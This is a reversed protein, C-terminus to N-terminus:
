SCSRRYVDQNNERVSGKASRQANRSWQQETERPREAGERVSGKASPTAVDVRPRARLMPADASPERVSGKASPTAVQRAQTVGQAEEHARSCFGERQANHSRAHRPHPQERSSGRRAPSQSVARAASAARHRAVRSVFGERQAKRGPTCDERSSGRASPKAVATVLSERVWSQSDGRPRSSTVAM